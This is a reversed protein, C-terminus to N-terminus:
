RGPALVPDPRLLTAPVLADARVHVDEGVAWLLPNLSRWGSVRGVGHPRRPVSFTTTLRTAEGDPGDASPHCSLEVLRELGRLTLLGRVMVAGNTGVGARGRFTIGPYRASDLFRPGALHRDRLPIGTSVSWAAVDVAVDLAGDAARQVTGGRAAFHGTVRLLGLWRVSFSVRLTEADLRVLGNPPM